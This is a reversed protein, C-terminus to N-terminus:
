SLRSLQPGQGRGSLVQATTDGSVTRAEAIRKKIVRFYLGNALMARLPFALVYFFTAGVGIMEYHEKSVDDGARRHFAPIWIVGAPLFLLVAAGWARRYLAWFDFFFAPWHWSPFTSTPRRISPLAHCMTCAANEGIYARWLMEDSAGTGTQPAPIPTPTAPGFMPFALAVISASTRTRSVSRKWCKGCFM